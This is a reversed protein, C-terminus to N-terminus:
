YEYDKKIVHVNLIQQILIINDKEEPSYETEDIYVVMQGNSSIWVCRPKSTMRFRKFLYYVQSELPFSTDLGVFIVEENNGIKMSIRKRLQYSLSTGDTVICVKKSPIRAVRLIGQKVNEPANIEDLVTMIINKSIDIHNQSYGLALQRESNALGLFSGAVMKLRDHSQKMIGDKINTFYWKTAIGHSNKRMKGIQERITRTLEQRNERLKKERSPALWGFLGFLAAIGTFVWGIPSSSALLFAVAAGVGAIGSAWGLGKKWNAISFDGTFRANFKYSLNMEQQLDEFLDKIKNEAKCYTNQMIRELREKIGFREVENQWAAGANSDEVHVEVFGSVNRDLSSFMVDIEDHMRKYETQYFFDCWKDLEKIKDSVLVYQNYSEASFDFLGVSQEYIPVDVISLFSKRRYFVGNQVVKDIIANEVYDFRSLYSLERSFQKYRPQQSYFKALLHTVLFDVRENPLSTQIFQNFQEVLGTIDMEKELREPDSLLRKLRQEDAISKKYNCICILPKDKQKLKVLWDAETGEPQGATILFLVLDANTVAKEALEEDEKGEYAEIGPVDTVAMGQWEYSRTDRTTRQGGHGMSSGDGHTLIERLTSKGTMTKGFLTINFSDLLVRKEEVNRRSSEYESYFETQIKNLQEKIGKVLEPDNVHYRSMERESNRIIAEAAAISKEVEDLYRSADKYGARAATKSLTLVEKLSKLSKQLNEKKRMTLHWNSTQFM